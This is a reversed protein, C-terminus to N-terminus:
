HPVEAVLIRQDDFHMKLFYTEIIFIFFTFMGEMWSIARRTTGRESRRLTAVITGAASGCVDVVV